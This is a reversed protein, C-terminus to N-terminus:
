PWNTRTKKISKRIFVCNDLVWLHGFVGEFFLGFTNVCFLASFSSFRFFVSSFNFIETWNIFTLFGFRISGIEISRSYPFFHRMYLMISFPFITTKPQGLWGLLYVLWMDHLSYDANSQRFLLVFINIRILLMFLLM